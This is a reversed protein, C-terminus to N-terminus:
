SYECTASIGKMERKPYSVEQSEMNQTSYPVPYLSDKEKRGDTTPGLDYQCSHCANFSSLDYEPLVAM